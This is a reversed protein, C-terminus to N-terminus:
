HSQLVTIRPRARQLPFTSKSNFISSFLAFDWLNSFCNCLFYWERIYRELCSIVKRYCTKIEKSALINNEKYFKKKRPAHKDKGRLKEKIIKWERINEIKRRITPTKKILKTRTQAVWWSLRSICTVSIARQRKTENSQLESNCSPHNPYHLLRHHEKNESKVSSQRFM